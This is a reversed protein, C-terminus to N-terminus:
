EDNLGLREIRYRMSRVTIGLLKAAATRNYKTKELAGVISEKELRDLYDQLPLGINSTEPQAVLTDQSSAELSELQLGDKGIEVDSCLALTRELINELERVNGPFNYQMLAELASKSLNCRTRGSAECLRALIANAILSIDDQMERLAPMKLEIVNLRYYLDQRFRGDEIRETLKQHTASIIRVDVNEEQTSGLKRVRKEQIARLLKVQMTLPLDAVEDLFLTGGDAALFFGGREVDAGTFAGKKYGFFESEMLNEPIAGCNVPVFPKGHRASKAHISRAALEKGSGSEGSIYVPAQSRSLKEVMSRLQLMPPSEGLLMNEEDESVSSAKNKLPPLNLASKVLSRLQQLSVPKALYDFAGTKLATVANETTGHATIVAVPLDASFNVIHRVLELGEGDPLRMDTLCLDFHHLELMHKADNLNMARKVEMGMRALTLELLELIDSEDDVILITPVSSKSSLESNVTRENQNPM